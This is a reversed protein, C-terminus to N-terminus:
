GARKCPARGRGSGACVAWLALLARTVRQPAVRWSSYTRAEAASAFLCRTADSDVTGCNSKVLPACPACAGHAHLANSYLDDVRLAPIQLSVGPASRRIEFFGLARLQQKNRASGFERIRVRSPTRVTCAGLGSTFTGPSNSCSDLTKQATLAVYRPIM